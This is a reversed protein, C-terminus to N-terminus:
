REPNERLEAQYEIDVQIHKCTPTLTSGPNHGKHFRFAPCNCFAPLDGKERVVMYRKTPDSESPVYVVDQQLYDAQQPSLEPM